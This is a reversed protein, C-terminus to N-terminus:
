KILKYFIIKGHARIDHLARVATGVHRTAQKEIVFDFAWLALLLKPLILFLAMILEPPSNLISVWFSQRM